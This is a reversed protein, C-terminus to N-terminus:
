RVEITDILLEAPDAGPTALREVRLVSDGSGAADGVEITRRAPSASRNDVEVGPQDDLSVIFRGGWPGTGIQCVLRGAPVPGLRLLAVDGTATAIVAAGARESLKYPVRREALRVQATGQAAAILEEAEIVTAEGGALLDGVTTPDDSMTADAGADIMAAIAARTNTNHMAQLGAAHVRAITEDALRDNRFGLFSAFGAHDALQTNTLTTQDVFLVGVPIEDTPGILEAVRRAVDPKTSGLALHTDPRSRRFETIVEVVAAPDGIKVEVLLGCPTGAVLELVQRLLPVTTPPTDAGFWSGADLQCIEDLTFTEVPDARRQPWRVSVDTTREFTPDHTVVVAGDSSTRVDLEVYDAYPIAAEIAPLTNEPFRTSFGRHACAVHAAGRRSWLGPRVQESREGTIDAREDM